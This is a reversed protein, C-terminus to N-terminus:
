RYGGAPVVLPKPLRRFWAVCDRNPGGPYARRLARRRRYRDSSKWRVDIGDPRHGSYRPYPLDGHLHRQSNLLAVRNGHYDNGLRRTRRSPASRGVVPIAITAYPAIPDRQCDLRGAMSASWPAPDTLPNTVSPNALGRLRAPASSGIPDPNAMKVQITGRWVRRAGAKRSMGLYIATQGHRLRRYYRFGPKRQRRAREPYARTRRHLRPSSAIALPRPLGSIPSAQQIRLRRIRGGLFSACRTPSNVKTRVDVLARKPCPLKTKDDPVVAPPVTANSRVSVDGVPPSGAPM